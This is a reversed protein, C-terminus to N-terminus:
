QSGASKIRYGIRDFQSQPIELHGHHVAYHCSRCLVILRNAENNEPKDDYYGDIHHVCINRESGCIACKNGDRNCVAQYNGGYRVDDDQQIYARLNKRAKAPKKKGSNNLMYTTWSEMGVYFKDTGYNEWMNSFRYINTDCRNECSVFGHEILAAMDRGFCRGSGAHYLGYRTNWQSFSMTFTDDGCTPAISREQNAVKCMLFLVRQSASLEKWALSYTMRVSIGVYTDENAGTHSSPVELASYVDDM